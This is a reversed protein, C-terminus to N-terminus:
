GPQPSHHGAAYRLWPRGGVWVWTVRGFGFWAPNEICRRRRCEGRTPGPRVARRTAASGGRGRRAARLGFRGVPPHSRRLRTDRGGVRVGAPQDGGATLLQRPEHDREHGAGDAAALVGGAARGLPAGRLHGHPGPDPRAGTRGDDSRGPPGPGYWRVARGAPRRADRSRFASGVPLYSAVGVSTTGTGSPNRSIPACM